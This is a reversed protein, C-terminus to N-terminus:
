EAEMEKITYERGSLLTGIKGGCAPCVTDGIKSLECEYPTSCASCQMVIPTREISIRAGEALTGKSLYDFYRQIWQDELDSLRGIRLHIVKVKRVDNAQAHKLIIKLISETIPLEHM